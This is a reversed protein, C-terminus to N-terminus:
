MAPKKEPLLLDKEKESLYRCDGKQSELFQQQDATLETSAGGVCHEGSCAIPATKGLDVTTAAPCFYAEETAASQAYALSAALACVALLSSSIWRSASKM